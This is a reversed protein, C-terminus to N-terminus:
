GKPLGWFALNRNKYRADNTIEEGFWAFPTFEWSEKVSMFEIEAVILGILPHKYVDVEILRGKEHFFYRTKEIRKGETLPWLVAFQEETLAVEHESRILHGQSKITLYYKSEINRVRVETVDNPSSIYGQFIEACRSHFVTQPPHILLFKREIEQYAAMMTVM